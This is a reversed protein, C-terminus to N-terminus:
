AVRYKRTLVQFVAKFLANLWFIALLKVIFTNSITRTWISIAHASASTHVNWSKRWANAGAAPLQALASWILTSWSHSRQGFPFYDATRKRGCMTLQTASLCWPYASAWALNGARLAFEHLCLQFTCMMALACSLLLQVLVLEFALM